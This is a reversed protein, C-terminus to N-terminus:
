VEIMKLRNSGREELGELFPSGKLEFRQFCARFGLSWAWLGWGKVILVIM